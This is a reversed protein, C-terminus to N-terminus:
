RSTTGLPGAKGSVVESPAKRVDEWVQDIHREEFKGRVLQKHFKKHKSLNGGKNRRQGVGM